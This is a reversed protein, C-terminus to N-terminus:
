EHSGEELVGSTDMADDSAPAVEQTSVPDAVPEPQCHSAVSDSKEASDDLPPMSDRESDKPKELASRKTEIWERISDKLAPVPVLMCETLHQRNFPDTASNLLHRVITSRDMIKGSTPLEVPDEMITDMVPDRFEDPADSLDLELKMRKLWVSHANTVLRKFAFLTEPCDSRMKSMERALMMMLDRNFSREDSAIAVAFAESELATYISMLQATLQVPDWSYKKPNKVQLFRGKACLQSINFNLMAALRDVVEPRLFPEKIWQTLCQFLDVTERALTLYSKCQREDTSLQRVHTQRQDAPMTAWGEGEMVGQVKAIRGLCAISEDLLYTTDNILMNVFKVFEKSKSSDVITKRHDSDSWLARLIVSIHYRISFKDYFESSAGTREVQTYFSMLAPGLNDIAVRSSVVNSFYTPTSQNSQLEPVAVFLVEILKAVLYPNSVWKSRFIFLLLFNNVNPIQSLLLNQKWNALFLLFEAVDEVYFEPLSALALPACNLRGCQMLKDEYWLCGCDQHSDWALDVMFECLKEYFMLCQTLFNEDLISVEACMRTRALRKIHMQYSNLLNTNRRAAATNKWEDQTSTLEEVLRFYNRLNRFTKLYYRIAPLLAIHHAHIALFWVHTSFNIESYTLVAKAGAVPPAEPEGTRRSARQVAALSQSKLDVVGGSSTSTEPLGCALMERYAAYKGADMGIKALFQVNVLTQFAHPYAANIKPLRVKSAFPQLAALFNLLAGDSSLKQEDFQMQCRRENARVVAAVYRLFLERSESVIAMARLVEYTSKRIDYITARLANQSFKCEESGSVANEFYRKSIMPDDPLYPSLSLFPGLYSLTVVERGYCGSLLPKPLWMETQAIQQVFIQGFGHPSDNDCFFALIQIPIRCNENSLTTRRAMDYVGLLLPQILAKLTKPKGKSSCVLDHLYSQPLRDKIFFSLLLHPSREKATKKNQSFPQAGTLLLGSYRICLQKIYQFLEKVPSKTTRAHEESHAIAYTQMIYQLVRCHYDLEPELHQAEPLLKLAGPYQGKPAGYDSDEDSVTNIWLKEPVFTAEESDSASGISSVADGIGSIWELVGVMVEQVLDEPNMVFSNSSQSKKSEVYEQLFNAVTSIYVVPSLPLPKIFGPIGKGTGSSNAKAAASPSIAVRFTGCIIDLLNQPSLESQILVPGHSDDIEMTEMNADPELLNLVDKVLNSADKRMVSSKDTGQANGDDLDMADGDISTQISCDVASDQSFDMDHSGPKENQSNVAPTEQNVAPEPEMLRNYTEAAAQSMDSVAESSDETSQDTGIAEDKSDSAISSSSADEAQSANPVPGSSSQQSAPSESAMLRALRRRRIEEHDLESMSNGSGARSCIIVPLSRLLTNDNQVAFRVVRGGTKKVIRPLPKFCEDQNWLRRVKMLIYDNFDDHALHLRIVALLFSTASIAQSARLAFRLVLCELVKNSVTLGAEWLLPRLHYSLAKCSNKPSEFKLFAARWYQLTQLLPPIDKLMVRGSINYDRLMILSKCLELNPKELLFTKWHSKFIKMLAQADIESCYKFLVKNLVNRGEAQPDLVQHDDFHTMSVPRFIMNDENVEWINTQKDTFIRLLFRSESNPQATQPVVIYNGPPLTFFTATERAVSHTTVDIPEQEVCFGTTLRTMNAPVEYVAFGIAQLNESPAHSFGLDHRHLKKGDLLGGRMSHCLQTKYEQTVSVVMHCKTHGSRPIQIHFQPNVATTQKYDPGGGANYGIRWRRRALVARWPRKSHLAPEMM